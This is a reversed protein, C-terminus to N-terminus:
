KHAGDGHLGYGFLGDHDALNEIDEPTSNRFCWTCVGDCWESHEKFHQDM